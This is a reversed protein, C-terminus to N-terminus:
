NLQGKEQLFKVCVPRLKARNAKLCNLVAFDGGELAPKCLRSADRGCASEEQQRTQAVAQAVFLSSLLAIASLYRIM